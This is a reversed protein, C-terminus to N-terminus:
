SPDLHEPSNQFVYVGVKYGFFYLILHRLYFSKQQQFTKLYVIFNKDKVM